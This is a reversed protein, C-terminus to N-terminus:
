APPGGDGESGAEGQGEDKSKESKLLAALEADLDTDQREGGVYGLPDDLDAAGPMLDPHGWVADRGEAGRAERLAAWLNAAQRMREPRLELGILSAFTKEAPGGTVRRRRVTENLAKASPMWRNTAQDVVEDVWGEVLALLTEVSNLTERQEDSTAPQLLSGQLQESLQELASPDFSGEMQGVADELASTDITIGKAYQLVLGHIQDRLWGTGAFLRQRAAERLTLYIRVDTASQELGEGFAAVNTPLLVVREKDVLPLGIDSVGVVQTALTGLGQGMQMAFLTGGSSRLIPKFMETMGAFPNDGQEGAGGTLAEALAESMSDAVPQALRKWVALTQEIWEARSWAGPTGSVRPLDTAQDLWGEALEVAERLEALQNDFPTPDPGASAVTKRAVDRIQDWNVGSPSDAGGPAGFMAGMGMSSFAQQLQKMLQEMGAASPQGAGPPGAGPMGGGPLQGLADMFAQFPNPEGPNGSSSDGSENHPDMEDGTDDNGQQDDAM